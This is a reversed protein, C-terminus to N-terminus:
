AARHRGQAPTPVGIVMSTLVTGKLICSVCQIVGSDEEDVGFPHFHTIARYGAVVASPAEMTLVTRTCTECEMSDANDRESGTGLASYLDRLVHADTLLNDYITLSADYGEVTISIDFM